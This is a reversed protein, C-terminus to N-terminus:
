PETGTNHRKLEDVTTGRWLPEGSRYGARGIMHAAVPTTLVLFLIVGVSRTSVTPDDLLVAAGAVLSAAGLTAAKSTASMRTLLDPLRLLGISALLM